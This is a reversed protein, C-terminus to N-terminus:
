LKKRKQLLKQASTESYLFPSLYNRIYNLYLTNVEFSQNSGKIKYLRRVIEIQFRDLQLCRIPIVAKLLESSWGKEQEADVNGDVEASNSRRLFECEFVHTQSKECTLSCMPLKCGASCAKLNRCIRHCGVCVPSILVTARPGAIIPTDVFIVDGNSFNRKAAVGRYRENFLTIEYNAVIDSNLLLRKELYSRILSNIAEVNDM